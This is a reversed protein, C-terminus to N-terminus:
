VVAQVGVKDPEGKFTTILKTACRMLGSKMAVHQIRSVKLIMTRLAKSNPQVECYVRYPCSVSNPRQAQELIPDLELDRDIYSLSKSM